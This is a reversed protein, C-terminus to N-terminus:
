AVVEFWGILAGQGVVMASAVQVRQSRVKVLRWLRLCTHCVVDKTCKASPLTSTLVIIGFMEDAAVVTFAPEVRVRRQIRMLTSFM